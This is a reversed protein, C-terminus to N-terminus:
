KAKVDFLYRHDTPHQVEPLNLFARVVDLHLRAEHDQGQNCLTTATALHYRMSDVASQVHQHGGAGRTMGSPKSAPQLNIARWDSRTQEIAARCNGQAYAPAGAAVILCTVVLLRKM